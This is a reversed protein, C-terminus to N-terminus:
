KKYLKQIGAMDGNALVTKVEGEAVYGYMVNNLCATNYLDDLGAAHGLEHLVVTDLDFSGM